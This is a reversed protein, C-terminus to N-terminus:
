NTLGERHWTFEENSIGDYHARWVELLSDEVVVKWRWKECLKSGFCRQNETKSMLQKAVRFM